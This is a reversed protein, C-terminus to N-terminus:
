VRLYCWGGGGMGVELRGWGGASGLGGTTEAGTSLTGPTAPLGKAHAEQVSCM